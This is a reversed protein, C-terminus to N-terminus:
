LDGSVSKHQQKRATYCLTRRQDAAIQEDSPIFLCLGRRESAKQEVATKRNM